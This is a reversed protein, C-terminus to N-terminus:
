IPANKGIKVSNKISIRIENPLSQLLEQEQPTLQVAEQAPVSKQLKTIFDLQQLTLGSLEKRAQPDEEVTLKLTGSGTGIIFSANGLAITSIDRLSTDQLLVTGAKNFLTVKQYDNVISSRSVVMIRESDESIAIHVSDKSHPLKADEAAVKREADSKKNERESAELQHLYVARLTNYVVYTGDPSLVATAFYNNRGYPIPFITKNSLNVVLSILTGTTANNGSILAHKGGTDLSLELLPFHTDIAHTIKGKKIDWLQILGDISGSVLTQEDATFQACSIREKHGSVTAVPTLEPMTCLEITKENQIRAFYTGQPSLMHASGPVTAILKGNRHWLCTTETQEKDNEARTMIFRNSHETYIARISTAHPTTLEVLPKDPDFEQVYATDKLGAVFYHHQPQLACCFIRDKFSYTRTFTYAIPYEKPDVYYDMVLKRLPAAQVATALTTDAAHKGITQQEHAAKYLACINTIVLSYGLVIYIHKM